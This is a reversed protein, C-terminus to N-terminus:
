IIFSCRTEKRSSDLCFRSAPIAQKINVWLRILVRMVMTTEPDVCGAAPQCCVSVPGMAVASAASLFGRGSFLDTLRGAAVAQGDTGTSFCPRCEGHAGGLVTYFLHELKNDM